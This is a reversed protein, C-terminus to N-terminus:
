KKESFLTQRLTESSEQLNFQKIKEKNKLLFHEAREIIYEKSFTQSNQFFEKQTIKLIELLDEFTLTRHRNLINNIVIFQSFDSRKKKSLFGYTQFFPIIKERIANKNTVEFVWFGDKRFRITGCQLSSKILALIEREKQSINFVPTIKWGLFYDDQPRFRVNFRGEGDSFGVIYGAKYKKM